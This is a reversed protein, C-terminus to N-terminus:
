WYLINNFTSQHTKKKKVKSRKLFCSLPIKMKDCWFCILQHGYNLTCFVALQINPLTQLFQVHEPSGVLPEFSKIQQIWYHLEYETLNFLGQRKEKKYFVTRSLSYLAKWIFSSRSSFSHRARCVSLFSSLSFTSTSFSCTDPLAAPPPGAGGSAWGQAVEAGGSSDPAVQCLAARTIGSAPDRPAPGPM